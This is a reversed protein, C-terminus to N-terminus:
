WASWGGDIVLNAGTMYESAKSCLFLMPAGYDDKTAMRGLMTNKSYADVFKKDHNTFVGGLTLTNVRIGDPGLYSALARTFNILGSKATAYAISRYKGNEYISNDPGTIGYISSINVIVGSKQKKMIPIIAKTALFSGSLSVSIEKKWLEFPFDEYPAFRNYEGSNDTLAANNILIDIRGLQKQVLKVADFVSKEDTIDLSFCHVPKGIELEIKKALIELDNTPLLDFLVPIAGAKGLTKAYELGLMGGGGTIIAVKTNLEFSSVWDSSNNSEKNQAM